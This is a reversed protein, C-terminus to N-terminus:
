AKLLYNLPQGLVRSMGDQGGLMRGMSNGGRLMGGM